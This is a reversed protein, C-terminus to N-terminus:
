EVSRLRATFARIARDLDDARPDPPGRRRQSPPPALATRMLPNALLPRLARLPRPDTVSDLLEAPSGLALDQLAARSAWADIWGGALAPRSAVARVVLWNLDGLTTFRRARAAMWQGVVEDSGAGRCIAIMADTTQRYDASDDWGQDWAPSTIGKIWSWRDRIDPDLPSADSITAYASWDAPRERIWTAVARDRAPGPPSRLANAVRSPMVLVEGVAGAACDLVADAHGTRGAASLTGSLTEAQWRIHTPIPDVALATEALGPRVTSKGLSSILAGPTAALCVASLAWATTLLASNRRPSLHAQGRSRALCIGAVCGTWALSLPWQYIGHFALSIAVSLTLIQLPMRLHRENCTWARRAMLAGVALMLLLAPIGGEALRQLYECHAEQTAWGEQSRKVLLNENDPTSVGILANYGGGAVPDTAIADGALRYLPVRLPDMRVLLAASVDSPSLTRWDAAFPDPHRLALALVIAGGIITGAIGSLVLRPWRRALPAVCIWGVVAAVLILSARRGTLTLVSLTWLAALIGISWLISKTRPRLRIGRLWFLWAVIGPTVLLGFINIQNFGMISTQAFSGGTRWHMVPYMVMCSLASLSTALGLIHIARSAPITGVAVALAAAGAAHVLWGGWARGHQEPAMANVLAMWALFLVGIIM